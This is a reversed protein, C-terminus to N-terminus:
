RRWRPFLESTPVKGAARPFRVASSIRMTVSLESSPAMGVSTPPITLRWRRYASFFWNVNAGSSSARGLRLRRRRPSFWSAPVIGSRDLASDAMSIRKSEFWSTPVKNLKERNVRSLFKKQLPLWSSPGSGSIGVARRSSRRSFLLAKLEVIGEVYPRRELSSVKSKAFLAIKPVMGGSSPRRPLSRFRASCPFWSEEVM